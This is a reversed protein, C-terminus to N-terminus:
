ARNVRLREVEVQLDRLMSLVHEFNTEGERYNNMNLSCTYEWVEMIDEAKVLYPEYVKNDSSLLLSKEKKLRSFVRKYVIGENRTLLVYTHGDRVDSLSEVYRGVVYWGDSLPPMSDGKIPFARHKGTPVIPLKMRQLGEIYEPDAYGNLYGARAKIPVLEILDNGQADVQIPFLIRNKGVKMLDDPNTKALNCRVLADVAVSFYDAYRILIEVPPECRGEEYSGIRARSIKLEEALGEQTFKRRERLVRLNLAIKGM